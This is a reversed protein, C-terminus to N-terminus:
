HGKMRQMIEGAVDEFRRLSYRELIMARAHRGMDLLREPRSLVKYLAASLAQDDDVPVIAGTIDNAISHPMEGTATVVAPLGAQMAEHLAICFGERRSPQVYLHLSALFAPTDAIYGVFRINNLRLARAGDELQEKLAGDGAIAVAIPPLSPEQVIRSLASLLLDYGKATHLRGLSGIRVPEGPRWAPAIPAQPDAAFIPWTIIRQPPIRLRKQTLEAVNASDAVWLIPQRAILRLLLENIPKLFANHQWCIVPMQLRRAVLTGILTARTLSTFIHTAGFTRVQQALWTSAAIHDREGGDRIIPSFGAKECAAIALGNRRTLAALRVTAGHNTLATLVRPLAAAAGGGELSNIVYLIRPGRAPPTENM